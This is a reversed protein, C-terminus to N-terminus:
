DGGRGGELARLAADAAEIAAWAQKVIWWDDIVTTHSQEWHIVDSEVYEVLAARCQRLADLEPGPPPADTM